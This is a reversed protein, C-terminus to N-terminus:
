KIEKNRTINRTKFDIKDLKINDSWNEITVIQM